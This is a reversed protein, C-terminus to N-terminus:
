GAQRELRPQTTAAIFELAPSLWRQTSACRAAPFSGISHRYPGSRGHVAAVVRGAATKLRQSGNGDKSVHLYGSIATRCVAVGVKTMFLM